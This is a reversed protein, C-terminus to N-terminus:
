PLALTHVPDQLSIRVILDLGRLCGAVAAGVVSIRKCNLSNPLARSERVLTMEFGMTPRLATSRVVVDGSARPGFVEKPV